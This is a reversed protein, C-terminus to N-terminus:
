CAESMSLRTITIVLMGTYAIHISTSYLRFNKLSGIKTTKATSCCDVFVLDTFYFDTCRGACARDAPPAHGYYYAHMSYQPHLLEPVDM